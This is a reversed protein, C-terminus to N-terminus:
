AYLQPNKSDLPEIKIAYEAGNKDNKALFIQGFAGEGLKRVIKINKITTEPTEEASFHVKPEIM